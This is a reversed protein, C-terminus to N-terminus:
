GNRDELIQTRRHWSDTRVTEFVQGGVCLVVSLWFQRLVSSVTALVLFWQGAADCILLRNSGSLSTSIFASRLVSSLHKFRRSDYEQFSPNGSLDSTALWLGRVSNLTVFFGRARCARVYARATNFSAVSHATEANSHVNAHRSQGVSAPTPMQTRVKSRLNHYWIAQLERDTQYWM